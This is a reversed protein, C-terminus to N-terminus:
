RAQSQSAIPQAQSHLNENQSSLVLARSPPSDRLRTCLECPIRGPGDQGTVLLVKPLDVTFTCHLSPFPFCCAAWSWRGPDMRQDPRLLETCRSGLTAEEFGWLTPPELSLRRERSQLSSDLTLLQCPWSTEPSSAKRGRGSKLLEVCGRAQSSVAGAETEAEWPGRGQMETHVRRTLVGTM